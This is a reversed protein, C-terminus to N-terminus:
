EEESVASDRFHAVVVPATSNSPNITELSEIRVFRRSTGHRSGFNSFVRNKADTDDEAVLDLSFPQDRKNSRFTGSARYAKM